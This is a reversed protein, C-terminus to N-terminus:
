TDAIPENIFARLHTTKRSGHPNESTRPCVRVFAFFLLRKFVVPQFPHASRGARCMRNVLAAGKEWVNRHNKHGFPNVCARLALDFGVDV